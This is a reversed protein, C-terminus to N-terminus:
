NEMAQSLRYDRVIPSAFFVIIAIAGIIGSFILTMTRPGVLDAGIGAIFAGVPMLGSKLSVIGM